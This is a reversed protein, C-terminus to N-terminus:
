FFVIERKLKWITQCHTLLNMNSQLHQPFADLAIRKNMESFRVAEADASGDHGAPGEASRGWAHRERVIVLRGNPPERVVPPVYASTLPPLPPSPPPGAPPGAWAGPPTYPPLPPPPGDEGASVVVVVGFFTVVTKRTSIMMMMMM